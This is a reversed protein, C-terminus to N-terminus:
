SSLGGPVEFQPNLSPDLLSLGAPSFHESHVSARLTAARDRAIRYDHVCSETGCDSQEIRAAVTGDPPLSRLPHIELKLEYTGSRVATSSARLEYEGSALTAGIRAPATRKFERSKSFITVASDFASSSIIAAITSLRELRFTYRDYYPGAGDSC